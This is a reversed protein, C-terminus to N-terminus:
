LYRGDPDDIVVTGAIRDWVGQRTEGLIMFGGVITSIGFTVNGLLTKGVLERIAMDGFSAVRGTSLKICRMGLVQKAPTQGKGWAIIWWILWGIVLTVLVLVGELLFAGFRKGNSTMIPKWAEPQTSSANAPPSQYAQPPAQPAGSPPPPPQPTAGPQQTPEFDTM